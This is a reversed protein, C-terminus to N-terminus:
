NFILHSPIPNGWIIMAKNDKSIPEWKQVKLKVANLTTSFWKATSWDVNTAPTLVYANKQKCLNIGSYAFVVYGPINNEHFRWTAPFPTQQYDHKNPNVHKVFHHTRNVGAGHSKFSPFGCTRIQGIGKEQHNHQQMKRTNAHSIAITPHIRLVENRRPAARMPM